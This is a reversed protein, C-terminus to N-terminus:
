GAAVQISRYVVLKNYRLYANKGSQLAQKLFKVLMARIKRVREPFDESVRVKLSQGSDVAAGDAGDHQGGSLESEREAKRM